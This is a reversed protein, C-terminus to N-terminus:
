LWHIDDVWHLEGRTSAHNTNDGRDEHSKKLSQGAGASGSLGTPEYMAIDLVAM